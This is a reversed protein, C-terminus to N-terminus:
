PSQGRSDQHGPPVTGQYKPASPISRQYKPTGTPDDGSIKPSLRVTGWYRPASPPGDGTNKPQPCWGGINQRSWPSRGGIDQPQSPVMGSIKLSQTCWGDGLIKPSPPSDGAACWCTGQSVPPSQGSMGSCPFARHGPTGRCPPPVLAGDM